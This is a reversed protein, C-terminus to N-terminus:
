QEQCIEGSIEQYEWESNEHNFLKAFDCDDMDDVLAQCEELSNAEIEAVWTDTCYVKFKM